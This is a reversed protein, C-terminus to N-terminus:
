PGCWYTSRARLWTRGSVKWLPVAFPQTTREWWTDEHYPWRSCRPTLATTSVWELTTSNFCRKSVAIRYDALDTLLDLAEANGFTIILCADAAMVAGDVM